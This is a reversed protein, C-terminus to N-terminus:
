TVASVSDTHRALVRVVQNACEGRHWGVPEYTLTVSQRDVSVRTFSRTAADPRHMAVSFAGAAPDHQRHFAALESLKPQEPRPVFRAFHGLRAAIVDATAFSSSILIPPSINGQRSSLGAGHWHLLLPDDEPSLALLQFPATHVLPQTEFRPLIEGVAPVDAMALVIQGRSFRSKAPEPCWPNAYDNLLCVTIGYENALLWTGGQDGDRPAIFRVGTSEDVSPAIEHARSNLEDRNFFLDYGRHRFRWTVTCM